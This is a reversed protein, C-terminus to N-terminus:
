YAHPAFQPGAIMLLGGGKETVFEAVNKLHEKMKPYAKPDVDGWIVVDFRNLQEKTLFDTRSIKVQGAVTEEFASKDQSAWEDDASLLFVKLDISKNGKTRNSERELLNKIFRFEYRPYGEVYLVKILKTEQVFVTREVRNNEYQAEGPQEPVDIVFTKEGKETPQYVLRVKVPKGTGDVNVKQEALVKDSGKERLRVPVSLNGFGPGTLRVEFVVRDNVYVADEVQLDHLILDKAEKDDGLGVFFLPVGMQAARKSAKVLDEGETTVGDSLMVVAALSSGRFDDLVQRVAAGLQSSDHSADARLDDM